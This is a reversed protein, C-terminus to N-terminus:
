PNVLYERFNSLDVRARVVQGPGGLRRLPAGNVTVALAAANGATLLLERQVEVTEHEGRRMLRQIARDGDASAAVWCDDLAEFTVTLREIVIPGSTAEPVPSDSSGTQPAGDSAGALSVAGPLSSSAPRGTSSFYLIAVILPVSTAILRVFTAAALRDSEVAEHDEPEMLGSSAAGAATGTTLQDLFEQITDEPDLGVEIAYSRVFARSFIGGPLRSFDNRELAQLANVGIKTTRSIQQLSVGRLERAQKLRSGFDGSPRDGM